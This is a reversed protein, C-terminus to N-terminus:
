GSEDGLPKGAIRTMVTFRGGLVAPDIEAVRVDPTPYGQGALWNHVVAELMVREAAVQPRNLRLILPGQLAPPADRCAFGFIAADYGGSIRAPPASYALGAYDFKRALYSLLTAAVETDNM